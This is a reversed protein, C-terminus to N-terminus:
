SFGNGDGILLMGEPGFNLSNISQVKPNGTKIEAAAIVPANTTAVATTGAAM